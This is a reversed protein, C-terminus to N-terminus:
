TQTFAGSWVAGFGTVRLWIICLWVLVLVTLDDHTSLHIFVAHNFNVSMITKKPCQGKDLKKLFCSAEAAPDPQMM